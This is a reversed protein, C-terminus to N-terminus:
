QDPEVLCAGVLLVSLGRGGLALASLGRGGGGLALAAARPLPLWSTCALHLFYYSNPPFPFREIRTSKAIFKLRECYKPIGVEM